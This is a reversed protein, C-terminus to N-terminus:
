MKKLNKHNSINGGHNGKRKLGDRKHKSLYKHDNKWLTILADEGCTYFQHVSGDAGVGDSHSLCVDRVLGYHSDTYVGDISVRQMPDNVGEDASFSISFQVVNHEAFTGGYLVIRSCASDYHGRPLLYDIGHFGNHQVVCEGEEVDWISLTNVSTILVVYDCSSHNFPIAHIVDCNANYCMVFADDENAASVDYLSATGDASTTYLKTPSKRDFALSLVADSHADNYRGVTKGLNRVDFFHVIGKETGSALITGGLGFDICHTALSNTVMQQAMANGAQRVDYMFIGGKGAACLISEQSPSYVVQRVVNPGRLKFNRIPQLTNPDYSVINNNPALGVTLVTKTANMAMTVAFHSPRKKKTSNPKLSTLTKRVPRFTRPAQGGMALSSTPGSVATSMTNFHM